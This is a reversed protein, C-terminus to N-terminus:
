VVSGANVDNDDGCCCRMRRDLLHERVRDSQVRLQATRRMEPINQIQTSNRRWRPQILRAIPRRRTQRKTDRKEPRPTRITLNQPYRTPKFITKRLSLELYIQLYKSALLWRCGSLRLITFYRCFRFRWVVCFGFFNREGEEDGIGSYLWFPLFLPFYIRQLQWPERSNQCPAIGLRERFVCLFRCTFELLQDSHWFCLEQTHILNVFLM